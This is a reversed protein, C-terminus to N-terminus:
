TLLKIPLDIPKSCLHFSRFGVLHSGYPQSQDAAECTRRPHSLRLLIASIGLGSATLIFAHLVQTKRRRPVHRVHRLPWSVSCSTAATM